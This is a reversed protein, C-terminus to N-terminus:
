RIAWSTCSRRTPWRCSAWGSTREMREPTMMWNGLHEVRHRHDQRPRRTIAKEYADLIMDMAIDGITHVCCRMGADHYM